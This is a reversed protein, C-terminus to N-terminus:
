LKNSPSTSKFCGDAMKITRASETPAKGAIEAPPVVLGGFAGLIVDTTAPSPLNVTEQDAGLLASGMVEYAAEAAPVAALQEVAESVHEIEPNVFKAM